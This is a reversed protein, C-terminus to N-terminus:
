MRRTDAEDDHGHDSGIGVRAETGGQECEVIRKWLTVVIDLELCAM